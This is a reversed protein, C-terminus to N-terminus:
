ITMRRGRVSRLEVEEPEPLMLSMGAIDKHVCSNV